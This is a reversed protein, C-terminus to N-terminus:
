APDTMEAGGGRRPWRGLAAPLHPAVRRTDSGIRGPHATPVRGLARVLWGDQVGGVEAARAAGLASTRRGEWSPLAARPRVPRVRYGLRRARALGTGVLVALAVWPAVSALAHAPDGVDLKLAGFLVALLAAGALFRSGLRDAAVLLCFGIVVGVAVPGAWREAAVTDWGALEAVSSGVKSAIWPLVALLGCPILLLPISHTAGRHAGRQEPDGPGRTLRYLLRAYAQVAEALIRSLPGLVRTAAADDHDLDNLAAAGAAVTAFGIAGVTPIPLAAGALMGTCWGSLVHSRGLM